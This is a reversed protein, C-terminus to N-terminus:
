SVKNGTLAWRMLKAVDSYKCQCKNAVTEMVATVDNNTTSNGLCCIESLLM